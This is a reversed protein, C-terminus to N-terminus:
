YFTPVEHIISNIPLSTFSSHILFISPISIIYIIGLFLLSKSSFIAIKTTKSFCQVGKCRSQGKWSLSPSPFSARVEAVRGPSTLTWLWGKTLHTIINMKEAWTEVLLADFNWDTDACCWFTSNNWLELCSVSGHIRNTFAIARTFIIRIGFESLM